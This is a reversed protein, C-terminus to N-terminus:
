LSPTRISNDRLFNKLARPATFLPRSGMQPLIDTCFHYIHGTLIGLIGPLAARLSQTNLVDILMSVFPLQWYEVQMGFLTPTLSFPQERSCVYLAACSLASSFFPIELIVCLLSLMTIQSSLFVLQQASGKSNELTQGYTAFFYLKSLMPLGFSGFFAAATLPRWLELARFTRGGHLAFHELPVGLFSTAVTLFLATLIYIRNILHIRLLPASLQALKARVRGLTSKSASVASARRQSLTSLRTSLARKKRRPSSSIIATSVSALPRQTFSRTLVTTPAAILGNSRHFCERKLLAANSTYPLSPPHNELGHTCVSQRRNPFALPAVPHNLHEPFIPTPSFPFSSSIVSDLQLLTLLLVFSISTQLTSLSPWSCPVGRVCCHRQMYGM